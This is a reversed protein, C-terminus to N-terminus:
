GARAKKKKVLGPKFRSLPKELFHWSLAAAGVSLLALLMVRLTNHAEPTIGIANLYPGLIIHVLVHFLYIGLSIQGMYVLPPLALFKGFPGRWGQATSAILWGIFVAEWLEVTALWPSNQPVGRLSRGILLCGFAIAGFGWRQKETMIVTGIKGKALWAVLGGVAFSDLSNPLMTWRILPNIEYTVCWLRYGFAILAATFLVPLFWRRPTLLIVVPWLLYFQEQVSLSWLHSIAPPWYGIHV